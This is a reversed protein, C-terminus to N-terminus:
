HKKVKIKRLRYSTYYIGYGSFVIFLSGLSVLKLLPNNFDERDEFDLIHLMWFFDFLRWFHNRRAKIEGTSGDLYLRTGRLDDFDVVFVPLPGKYEQPPDADLFYVESIGASGKYDAQASRRIAEESMRKVQKGSVADYVLWGIETEVKYVPDNGASHVLKLQKIVKDSLDPLSTLPVVSDLDIETASQRALDRGKVKDFPVWAFYIGSIIWFLLQVGLVLGVYQHFKRLKVRAKKSIM